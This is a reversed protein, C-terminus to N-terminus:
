LASHLPSPPWWQFQDSVPQKQLQLLGQAVLLLNPFNCFRGIPLWKHVPLGHTFDTSVWPCSRIVWPCGTIKGMPLTGVAWQHHQLLGRTTLWNGHIATCSNKTTPSQLSRGSRWDAGSRTRPHHPCNPAVCGRWQVLAEWRVHARVCISCCMALSHCSLVLCACVIAM